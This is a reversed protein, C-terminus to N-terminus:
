GRLDPIAKEIKYLLAQVNRGSELLSADLWWLSVRDAVICCEGPLGRVAVTSTAGGAV